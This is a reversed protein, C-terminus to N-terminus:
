VKKFSRKTLQKISLIRDKVAYGMSRSSGGIKAKGSRIAKLVDDESSADPIIVYAKGVTTTDHSDSGATMPLKMEECLKRGAANVKRSSHHNLAEIGDPKIFRTKEGGLGSWYRFPHAVVAMGGLDRIKQLTEESTLGKPVEQDIGYGLIHGDLSSVEMGRIVTMGFESAIKRAEANGKLSNHDAICVGELGIKKAKKLIDRPTAKGDVSFTSHIHIDLKM